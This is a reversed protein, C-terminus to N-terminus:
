EVAAEPEISPALTSRASFENAAALHVGAARFRGLVAVYLDSRTAEMVGITDCIVNCVLEIGIESVKSVVVTPAPVAAVHAHEKAATMLIDMAKALDTDLVVTLRLSVRHSLDNLSRNKVMSSVIDSNPVIVTSNEALQLETSRVNIRKVKGEEGKVVIVDGVRIPREALVILGAVFNSVVQQLGFGIGVSLASAVLAINQLQVGAQNLAIAFAILFGLYGTITRISHRVGQNLATRPLLQGDVWGVFMHTVVLGVTFLILGIGAAGIWGRVDGFRVGFFVDEFPNVNGFEIGWPSLLVLATVLITLLRLIGAIITGVLDVTEQRVGFMAALRQNSARGPALADYFIADVTIYVIAALCLITISALARGVIFGAFAIFGLLLAGFVVVALIWLLPRLLNIPADIIGAPEDGALRRAPRLYALIGVLVVGTATLGTIAVTMTLSGALAQVFGLCSTGVLYVLLTANIVSSIRAATEDNARVLRYHPATPAFAAFVAGSAVGYVVGMTALGYILVDLDDPAVDFRGVVVWVLLAFAAFPLVRMAFVIVARSAIASRRSREGKGGAEGAAIELRRRRLRVHLWVVLGAMLPVFAALGALAGWSGKANMGSSIKAWMISARGELDPWALNAVRSWFAPAIFSEQHEFVRASFLNRRADTLADWLQDAQVLLAKAGRVQRDLTDVLSQVANRDDAAAPPSAPAPASTATPAAPPSPAAAPPTAAPAPAPASTPSPTPAAAPGFEALRARAATLREQLAVIVTNIEEIVPDLRDRLELLGNFSKAQGGREKDVAEVQRRAADLRGSEEPTMVQAVSAAGSLVLLLFVCLAQLLKM